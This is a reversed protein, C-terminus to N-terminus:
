TELLGAVQELRSRAASLAFFNMSSPCRPPFPDSGCLAATTPSVTPSGKLSVAPGDSLMRNFSMAMTAM